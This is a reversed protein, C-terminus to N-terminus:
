SSYTQRSSLSFDISYKTQHMKVTINRFCIIQSTAMNINENWKATGKPSECEVDTAQFSFNIPRKTPENTLKFKQTMGKIERERGRKRKTEKRQQKTKFIYLINKAKHSSSCTFASLRLRKNIVNPISVCNTANLTSHVNEYDVHKISFSFMLVISTSVTSM